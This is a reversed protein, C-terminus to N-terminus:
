QQTVEWSSISLEGPVPYEGEGTPYDLGRGYWDVWVIENGPQIQVDANGAITGQFDSDPQLTTIGELSLVLVYQGEECSLEPQFEINGRAIICGSGYLMSNPSLVITGEAFITQGNLDVNVSPGLFFNDKVYITGDLRTWLEGGKINLRQTETDAVEALYPGISYATDRSTAWSPLDIVETYDPDLDMVGPWYYSHLQDFTPWIVSVTESDLVEGTIAENPDNLNDADSIYVDGDIVCDEMITINGSSSIAYDLIGSLDMFSLATYATITTSSDDGGAAISTIKYSGAGLHQITVVVNKDNVEFVPDDAGPYTYTWNTGCGPLGAELAHQIKWLADDVGADAAYLEATRTEYVEGTVLGTGMHSLLPAVILGSAVLLILAVVMAAGKEDRLIRKLGINM